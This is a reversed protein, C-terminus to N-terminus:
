VGRYGVVGLDEDGVARGLTDEVFYCSASRMDTAIRKQRPRLLDLRPHMHPPMYM